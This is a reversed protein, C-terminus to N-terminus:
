SLLIPQSFFMGKIEITKFCDRYKKELVEYKYKSKHTETVAINKKLSDFNIPYM